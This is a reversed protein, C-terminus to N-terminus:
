LGVAYRSKIKSPLIKLSYFKLRQLFIRPEIQRVCESIKVNESVWWVTVRWVSLRIAFTAKAKKLQNLTKAFKYSHPKVPASTLCSWETFQSTEIWCIRWVAHYQSELTNISTKMCNLLMPRTSSPLM